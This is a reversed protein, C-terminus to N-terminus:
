LVYIEKIVNGEQRLNVPRNAAKATASQVLMDLLINENDPSLKRWGAIKDVYIWANRDQNIAWLGLIKAGIIWTSVVNEVAYMNADIGCEGYAIRFFGGEGFGAGWSNKCIWYKDVDNYGVCSVCHGGALSGTVHKYIGSRYSFFDNYVSYCTVLPGKTSIWNKM